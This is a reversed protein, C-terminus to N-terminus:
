TLSELYEKFQYNTLAGPRRSRLKTVIARGKWGRLNLVRGNVLSSRNVGGLCHVLVKMGTKTKDQIENALKLLEDKDIKDIGNDGIFWTRYWDVEKQVKSSDVGSDLDVLGKIGAQRVALHSWPGDLHGSQYLNRDIKFIRVWFLGRIYAEAIILLDKLTM